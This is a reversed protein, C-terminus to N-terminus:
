STNIVIGHKNKIISVKFKLIELDKSENIFNRNNKINNQQVLGYAGIHKYEIINIINAM